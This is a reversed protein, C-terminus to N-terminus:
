WQFTLIRHSLLNLLVQQPSQLYLMGQESKRKTNHFCGRSTSPSESWWPVAHSRGGYLTTGTHLSHARQSKKNCGRWSSFADKLFVVLDMCAESSSSSQSSSYLEVVIAVFLGVKLPITNSDNTQKHNTANFYRMCYVDWWKWENAGNRNRRTGDNTMMWENERKDRRAWRRWGDM